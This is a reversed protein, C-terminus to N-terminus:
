PVDFSTIMGLQAHPKGDPPDKLTCIVLYRQGSELKVFLQGGASEGPRAILLGILSASLERSSAAGPGRELVQQVTVGPRLLMVSMEHRVRGRNEFSFLTPGARITTPIQVFAYDNGAVTVRAPEPFATPAPTQAVGPLSRVLALGVLWTARM